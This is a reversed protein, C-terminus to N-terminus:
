LDWLYVQMYISYICEIVHTTSHSMLSTKIQNFLTDFGNFGNATARKEAEWKGNFLYYYYIFVLYNWKSGFLIALLGLALVSGMDSGLRLSGVSNVSQRVSQLNFQSINLLYKCEIFAFQTQCSLLYPLCLLSLCFHCRAVPLDPLDSDLAFLM